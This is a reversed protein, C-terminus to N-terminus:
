TEPRHERLYETVDASDEVGELRNIDSLGLRNATELDVPIARKGPTFISFGSHMINM